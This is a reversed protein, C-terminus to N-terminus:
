FYKVYDWKSIKPYLIAVGLSTLLIIIAIFQNVSFINIGYGFIRDARLFDVLIREISSLVLYSILILGPTHLKNIRFIIYLIALIVLYVVSSYLQTPHQTLGIKNFVCTDIGYCCGANFCGIRGFVNIIPLYIFSMDLVAIIPIKKYFLFAISYILGGIIAGLVSLGGDWISVMDIFSMNFDETMIYLLRSSVIGFIATQTVLDLFDQNSILKNLLKNSTTLYFYIVIGTLISLNYGNLSLPGYININFLNM